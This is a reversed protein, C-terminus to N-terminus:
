KGRGQLNAAGAVPAVQEPLKLRRGLAAMMAGAGVWFTAVLGALKRHADDLGWVQGLLAFGAATLGMGVFLASRRAAASWGLVRSLAAAGGMAVGGLAGGVAWIWGPPQVMADRLWATLAAGLGVGVLLASLNGMRATRGRRARIADAKLGCEPLTLKEGCAGCRFERRAEVTLLDLVAKCFPCPVHLANSLM